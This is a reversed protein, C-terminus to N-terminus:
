VASMSLVSAAIFLLVPFRFNRYLFFTCVCVGRPLIAPCATHQRWKMVAGSAEPVSGTGELAGLVETLDDVEAGM